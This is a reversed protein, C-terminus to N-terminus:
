YFVYERDGTMVVPPFRREEFYDYGKKLNKWFTYWQSEKHKELKNETLKFPFAHVPVYRQGNRLSAEVLAYIEEIREDTMAYCGRSGCNGHIMLAGGTRGFQQDYQNPYGLNFSLHYSSYPNLRGPTVRYFGEPSQKDGQKQKPGFGGAFNCIKYTKFHKFVHQDQVWVELEKTEKFIRIFIPSGYELGKSHLSQILDPEVNSVIQKAKPSTPVYGSAFVPTSLLFLTTVILIIVLKKMYKDDTLGM